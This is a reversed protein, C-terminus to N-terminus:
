WTAALISGATFMAVVQPPMNLGVDWIEATFVLIFTPAVAATALSPLTLPLLIAKNRWLPTMVQRFHRGASRMHFSLTAWWGRTGEIREPIAAARKRLDALAGPEFRSCRDREDDFRYTAMAHGAGDAHDLGLLHGLLHLVLDAANWRVSEDQLTRVPRAKPAILLKRTSVVAVRAIESALGAVVRQKRSALGADTIVLTLDFPGEVMRLSAEDLFDAPRRVNENSLRDPEQLHFIWRADTAHELEPRVDDALRCAFDRIADPSGSPTISLLVGVNIEIM